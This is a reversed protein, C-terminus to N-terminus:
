IFFRIFHLQLTQQKRECCFTNKQNKGTEFFTRFSLKFCTDLLIRYRSAGLQSGSLSNRPALNPQELQFLSPEQSAPTMTIPNPAGERKESSKYKKINSM